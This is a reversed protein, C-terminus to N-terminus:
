ANSCSTFRLDGVEEDREVQAVVSVATPKAVDRGHGHLALEDDAERDTPMAMMRWSVDSASASMAFAAAGVLRLARGGLADRAAHAAARVTSVRKQRQSSESGVQAGPYRTTGSYRPSSRWSIHARPGM